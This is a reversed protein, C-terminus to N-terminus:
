GYHETGIQIGYFENYFASVENNLEEVSYMDEHLVSLLWLSGLIGSPIPSDWAEYDGPMRYVSGQRVATLSALQADGLIDGIDYGAESPIIIVEPNMALLQEYSVQARGDGEIEHAANRGGALAILSSQHMDRQVTSLYSGVGCMYVVPMDTLGQTMNKIAALKDHYYALLRESKDDVGAADAILVIMELLEDYGEPSVLIVPIGLEAMIDASDRLHV